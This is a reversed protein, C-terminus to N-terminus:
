GIGWRRSRGRAATEGSSLVAVMSAALAVFPDFASMAPAFLTSAGFALTVAAAALWSGSLAIAARGFFVIALFFVVHNARLLILGLPADRAVQAIAIAARELLGPCVAPPELAAPALQLGLAAAGLAIAAAWAANRKM